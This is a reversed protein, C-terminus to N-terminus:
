AKLETKLTQFQGKVWAGIATILVILGAVILGIIIAYEVTELGEENRWFSKILEM